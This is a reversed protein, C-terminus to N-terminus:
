PIEGHCTICFKDKHCQSCNRNSAVKLPHLTRWRVAHSAPKREHCNRCYDKVWGHCKVCDESKEEEKQSHVVLWEESRHSAPYSKKKHCSKCQNDAKRGNHCKLCTAMRPTHKGEPNKKHVVYQHCDICKMKLVDVHAKHPILLDGSPSAKRSTAHCVVCAESPPKRWSLPRALHFVSRIYLELGRQLYFAALDSGAPKTHCRVCNVEAHTSISWSDHYSKTGAFGKFFVPRSVLYYPLGIFVGIIILAGLVWVLWIRKQFFGKISEKNIKKLKGKSSNPEL